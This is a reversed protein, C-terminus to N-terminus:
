RFEYGAPREVACDSNAVYVAGADVEASDERPAGVAVDDFTDNDLDGASSVAYGAEDGAAEGVLKADVDGLALSGSLSDNGAIVYAAGADQMGDGDHGPAGVLVDDVADCTVDGSGAAAVSWGATDNAAEGSLKVDADALDIEGPLSAAGYVIYAAGTNRASADNYPAGVIVDPVGDDNVDGAGAVAFGARDGTGEGVLKVDADALSTTGEVPGSVLYAAGSDTGSGDHDDAGVLLDVAGDDNVDGADSVSEGAHDGAAEGLLKADADADLDVTEALSDAGVVFAAGAETGGDDDDIAGVVVGEDSGAVASTNSVSWGARDGEGGRLTADAEALPITAPLSDGGSVVYAAGADDGGGDNLPAGVIVDDYGDGNLDGATSVSLGTLDGAAVGTLKVDANELAIDSRNVPGYLVYAAGTEVGSSNEARPAGVILDDYGDGNVDGASAVSWGATDNATEGVIKTDAEGLSVTGSLPISAIPQSFALITALVLATIVLAGVREPTAWSRLRESTNMVDL